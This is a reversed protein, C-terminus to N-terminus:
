ESSRSRLGFLFLNLLSFVWTRFVPSTIFTLRAPSSMRIPRTGTGKQFYSRLGVTGPYAGSDDTKSATFSRLYDVLGFGFRRFHRRRLVGDIAKPKQGLNKENRLERQNAKYVFSYDMDLAFDKGITSAQFFPLSLVADYDVNFYLTGSYTKTTQQAPRETISSAFFTLATASTSIRPHRSFRM